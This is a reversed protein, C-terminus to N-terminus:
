HQKVQKKTCINNKCVQVKTGFKIIRVQVKTSKTNYHPQRRSIM